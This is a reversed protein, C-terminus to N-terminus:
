NTQANLGVQQEQAGTLRVAQTVYLRTFEVSLGVQFRTLCELLGKAHTGVQGSNGGEVALHNTFRWVVSEINELHVVLKQLM